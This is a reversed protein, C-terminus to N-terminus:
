LQDGFSRARHADRAREDAAAAGYRDVMRDTRWGGQRKLDGRDLGARKQADAWTHRFQHPHIHPVQALDARMDIMQGIGSAAFGRAGAPGIKTPLWLSHLHALPHKRRARLYRDLAVSTKAGFAISRWRSGKGLVYVDQADLDVSPVRAGDIVDVAMLGACEALRIGTDCFLRIIAEDRMGHFSKRDCTALIAKIYEVKVLPTSKEPITPYKMRHMPNIAMDIDDQEVMWDLWVKLGVYKAAATSAEWRALVEGIFAECHDRRIDSEDAVPLRALLQAPSEADADGGLTTGPPDALFDIFQRAALGYSKITKPAKNEARLSRLWSKRLLELGDRM